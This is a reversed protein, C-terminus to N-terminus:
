KENTIQIPRKKKMGLSEKAIKEINAPSNEVHFQTILKLNLNKLNEFEVQLTEKNNYLTSIEWSLKVKEISLIFIIFLASLYSLLIRKKIM